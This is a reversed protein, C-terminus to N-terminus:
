DEPPVKTLATLQSPDDVTSPITDFVAVVAVM